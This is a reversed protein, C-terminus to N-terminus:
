KCEYGLEEYKVKIEKKTLENENSTIFNNDILLVQQGNIELYEEWGTGIFEKFEEFFITAEEKEYFDHKDVKIVNTVLAKKNFKVTLTIKRDCIGDCDSNRNCMLDKTDLFPNPLVKAIVLVAYVIVLIVVSVIIGILIKIGKKM